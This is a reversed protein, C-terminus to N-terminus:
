TVGMGTHTNCHELSAPVARDPYAYNTLSLIVPMKFHWMQWCLFHGQGLHQTPHSQLTWHSLQGERAWMRTKSHQQRWLHCSSNLVTIISKITLKALGSHTNVLILILCSHFSQVSHLSISDHAKTYLFLHLFQKKNQKTKKLFISNSLIDSYSSAWLYHWWLFWFYLSSPVILIEPLECTSSQALAQWSAETFLHAKLWAPHGSNLRLSRCRLLLPSSGVFQGTVEVCTHVHVHM